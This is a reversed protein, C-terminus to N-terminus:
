PNCIQIGTTRSAHAADFLAYGFVRTRAEATVAGTLHALLANRGAHDGAHGRLGTVGGNFLLQGTTDYLVVHGSTTAHFLRAERGEADPLVTVGPIAAATQWLGTNTWETPGDKPLSDPQYFLVFAKVLGQSHALLRDLEALSARTCPCHLHTLLMLTPHELSRPIRSAAPWVPPPAAAQGPTHDYQWLISLGTVLFALRAGSALVSLVPQLRHRM